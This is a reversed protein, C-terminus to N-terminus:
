TGDPVGQQLASTWAYRSTRHEAPNLGVSRLPQRHLAGYRTARNLIHNAQPRSYRCHEAYDVASIWERGTRQMVASVREAVSKAWGNM